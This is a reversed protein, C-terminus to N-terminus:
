RARVLARTVTQGDAELRCLYTGPALARGDLRAEHRGAPLARDVLVAVERGLVDFVRLRVRGPAPLVFPITTADAFPNPANPELRATEPLAEPPAEAPTPVAVVSDALAYVRTTHGPLDLALTDLAAGAAAFHAGTLLDTLHYTAAPDLGMEAVPLALSAAVPAAGLNVVAVVHQAGPGGADAGQRDAGQRDAGQRDAWRRFAFTRGAPAEAVLPVEAYRGGTLAPFSRRMWGLHRYFPFFGQTDIAEMPLDRGYYSANTYPHLGAGIEQGYYLMPVGDLAFLLAAVMETQARTHAPTFRALDNNEMFRLVTADPHYGAGRNTLADRLDRARLADAGTNFLTRNVDWDDSFTRQWTWHSIWSAEPFWDYALDFGEEFVLPWSAKDEGLLLLEPKVRKLAQRWRTVLAPHDATVKWVADLRFGDVDFTEVWHLLAETLWGQVEPHDYDPVVYPHGDFYQVFGEPHRRYHAAYPNPEFTWQFFPHYHSAEGHAVVDQAYRHYTTLHPVFDLIVRMGRAHAAEVLAHLDAEPGLGSWLALHDLVEYGQGTVARPYIPQLYVTTVGLSQLEPLKQTLFELRGGYVFSRPLVQYIVARDVWAAHDTELEFPVVSGGSGVTVFTRARRGDGDSASVVWDVYYEGPPADAPVTGVAVSDSVVVLGLPAPNSADAGWGFALAAGDPNALVRGAFTVTRGAVTARLEAEPRPEYGLTWRLTDSCAGGGPGAACAVVTTLPETLRLPLEFTGATATFPHATGNVHLTGASAGALTGRVVQEQAWVTADREALTATQARAAGAASALALAAALVGLGTRM